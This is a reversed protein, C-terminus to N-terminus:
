KEKIKIVNTSHWSEEFKRNPGMNIPGKRGWFWNNLAGVYKASEKRIM